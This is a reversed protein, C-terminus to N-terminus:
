QLAQQKQRSRLDKSISVAHCGAEVDSGANQLCVRLRVSHFEMLHEAAAHHQISGGYVHGAIMLLTSCLGSTPPSSHGILKPTLHHNNGHSSALGNRTAHDQVGPFLNLILHSSDWGTLSIVCKM